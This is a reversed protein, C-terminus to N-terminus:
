KGGKESTVADWNDRLKRWDWGGMAKEALMPGHVARAAFVGMPFSEVYIRSVAGGACVFPMSVGEQHLKEVARPFASITTTMSATGTIMHPREKKATAVLDEVAVDRGMDIVRYGNSKLLVAAINKGIDHPDGEATHMLIKGRTERAGTMHAECIRVGKDMADAAVMVHPLYYIGRGYLEGVIYMGGILGQEIVEEPSSREIAEEIHEKITKHRMFVVDEAVARLAPDSPMMRDALEEPTEKTEMLIDYRRMIRDYNISKIDIM